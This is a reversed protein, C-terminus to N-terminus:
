AKWHWWGLFSGKRPQPHMQPWRAPLLWLCSRRQATSWLSTPGEPMSPWRHCVQWASIRPDRLQHVMKLSNMFIGNSGRNELNANKEWDVSWWVFVCFCRLLLAKEVWGLRARKLCVELCLIELCSVGLLFDWPGELVVIQDNWGMQFITPWSPFRGWIPNLM